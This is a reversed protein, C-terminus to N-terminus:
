REQGRGARFAVVGFGILSLLLGPGLLNFLPFPDVRSLIGSSGFAIQLGALAGVLQLLAGPLLAWGLPLRVGPYIQVAAAVAWGLLLAPVFAAWMSAVGLVLCAGVALGAVTYRSM